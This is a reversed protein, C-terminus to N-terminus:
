ELDSEVFQAGPVGTQLRGEEPSEIVPVVLVVHLDQGVERGPLGGGGDVHVGIPDTAAPRRDRESMELREVVGSPGDTVVSRIVGVEGSDVSRSSRGFDPLAEVPESGVAERTGSAVEGVGVVVGAVRDYACGGIAADQGGPAAAFAVLLQGHVFCQQMEENPNSSMEVVIGVHCLRISLAIALPVM